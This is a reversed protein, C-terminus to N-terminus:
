FSSYHCVVVGRNFTPRDPMDKGCNKVGCGIQGSTAWAMQTAHLIIRLEDTVLLVDISIINSPWENRQVEQEWAVSAAGGYVNMGSFPATTYRYYINEGVRSELSKKPM